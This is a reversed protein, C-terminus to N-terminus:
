ADASVKPASSKLRGGLMTMPIIAVLFVIHYWAPALNWFAYEVAIGVLLLIVGLVLTPRRSEGAVVAALFGAIISTLFSRILNVVVIATSTELSAGNIFATEAALTHRGYEPWAVSLVQESGLWIISWAIFGAIVGLIIRIM